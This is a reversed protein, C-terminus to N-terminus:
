GRMEGVKSWGSLPTEFFEALDAPSTREHDLPIAYLTGAIGGGANDYESAISYCQVVFNSCFFARSEGGIESLAQNAYDGIETTVDDSERGEEFASRAAAPMSYGGFTATRRSRDVLHMAVTAALPALTSGRTMRFVKWTALGDLPMLALGGTSSEAIHDSGVYIAAHVTTAKGSGGLKQGFAIALHSLSFLDARKLLIDGRQLGLARGGNGHGSM